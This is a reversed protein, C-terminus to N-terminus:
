RMAEALPGLGMAELIIQRKLGTAGDVFRVGANRLWHAVPERRAYVTKLVELMRVMALARTRRRRAFAHWVGEGGPDALGAIRTALGAVDELGLNVGLGALPHVVRAADGVLLVRPHPDFREAVQQGLPFTLRTDVECVAGLVSESARELEQAFAAEPLQARRTAQHPSQSWVVAVLDAHTGPLLALPGDLLFRQRAIREHPRVTRVVTALAAHGTPSGTVRTGLLGRVSSNAGDAAIVLRARVMRGDDIVLKVSEPGPEIATLHSGTLTEIGLESFGDWLRELIPGSECIWGLEPVGADQACFDLRATGREEWVQMAAFPVACEGDWARASALLRQSPPALAVARLDMGLAGRRTTPREREILAVSPGAAAIAHAAAAGVLGGGVVAVDVEV